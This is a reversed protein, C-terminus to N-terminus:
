RRGQNNTGVPIHDLHKQKREKAGYQTLNDAGQVTDLGHVFIMIMVYGRLRTTCSQTGKSLSEGGKTSVYYLLYM